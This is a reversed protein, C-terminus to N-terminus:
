DNERKTEVWGLGGKDVGREDELGWEVEGRCGSSVGRQIAWRDAQVM